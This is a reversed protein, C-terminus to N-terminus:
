DDLAKRVSVALDAPSFPKQIFDIDDALIGQRIVASDTYGSTFLIKITPYSLKIQESLLKGGMEPMVVDTLLLHIEGQHQQSVQLAERGNGAQLVTYGQEVLVRAAFDRVTTEDEVLLVTETGRPLNVSPSSSSSSFPDEVARPLYV